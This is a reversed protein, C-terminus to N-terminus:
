ARKIERQLNEAVQRDRGIRRLPIEVPAHQGHQHARSQGNVSEAGRQGALRSKSREECCNLLAPMRAPPNQTRQSLPEVGAGRSTTRVASQLAQWPLAAVTVPALPKAAWPPDRRLTCTQMM